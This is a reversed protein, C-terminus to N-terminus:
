SGLLSRISDVARRVSDPPNGHQGTPFKDGLWAAQGTSILQQHVLRIDRTLRQPGFRMLWKYFLAALRFDTEITGATNEASTTAPWRMADKGTGLDFIYVPKGTACAESLMAISDGTVIIARASALYAYYPNAKDDPKWRYLQMPCQAASSFADIAAPPTRASTTVLLSGGLSQALACSQSALRRAAHRGLTYPGSNGGMVVALHPQPLSQLDAAHVAAADRLLTDTVRHLTTVNHLIGPKDPLRYQPTTIVLDFHRPHAWHRGLLVIRTKGGSREKIWRCVPENRMGASIVLDPWPATLPSSRTCDIGMLSSLRLLGPVFDHRRYVLRKISFPWGLAEALALIQVNEGARYGTILWVSPPTPADKRCDKEIPDPMNNQSITTPTLITLFYRRTLLM